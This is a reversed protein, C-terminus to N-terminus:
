TLQRRLSADGNEALWLRAWALLVRRLSLACSAVTGRNSGKGLRLPARRLLLGERRLSVRWGSRPTPRPYLSTQNNRQDQITLVQKFKITINFAHSLHNHM